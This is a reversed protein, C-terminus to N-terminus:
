LYLRKLYDTRQAHTMKAIQAASAKENGRVAGVKGASPQAGIVRPVTAPSETQLSEALSVADELAELDPVDGLRGALHERTEEPLAELRANVSQRHKDSLRELRKRAKELDAAVAEAKAEAEAALEQYRGQKEKEARDRGAQAAEIEALREEAARARDLASTRRKIAEDLESRSVTKTAADAAAENDDSLQMEETM